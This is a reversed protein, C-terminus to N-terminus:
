TLTGRIVARHIGDIYEAEFSVGRLIRDSKDSTDADKVRPLNIVITEPDIAGNRVGVDLAAKVCTGIMAIGKTTYMVKKNNRFATFVNAQIKSILFPMFISLDTFKVTTSSAYGEQYVSVGSVTIYYNCRKSQLFTIETDTYVVPSCGLIEKCNLTYSGPDMALAVSAIGVNKYDEEGRNHVLTLNQQGDAVATSAVDSTGTVTPGTDRTVAFCHKNATRAFDAYADIVLSGWEIPCVAFWDDSVNRIAAMQTAISTGPLPTLDAYDSFSSSLDTVQFTTGPTDSVIQVKTNTDTASATVASGVATNIASVIGAAVEADTADSDSTFTWPTGNIKGSYVTSNALTHTLKVTMTTPSTLRGVAVREPRPNQGFAIGLADAIDGTPHDVLAADLSTYYRILDSHVTHFKPIMPTGFNPVSPTVGSVAISVAVITDLQSM